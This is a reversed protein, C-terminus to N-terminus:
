NLFHAAMKGKLEAEELNAAHKKTWSEIKYNWDRIAMSSLNNGFHFLVAKSKNLETLCLNATNIHERAEAMLRKAENNKLTTM